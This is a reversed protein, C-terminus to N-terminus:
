RFSTLNAQLMAILLELTKVYTGERFELPKLRGLAGIDAPLFYESPMSAGDVLIPIILRQAKLATAIEFRVFDNPSQIRPTGEADAATLWNKGIIVLVVSSEIAEGVAEKVYVASELDGSYGFIRGPLAQNLGDYLRGVAAASADRRRYCFFVGRKGGLDGPRKELKEVPVRSVPILARIAAVLQQQQNSGQRIDLWQINGLFYALDSEPKVNDLRLPIIPLGLEDARALERAM